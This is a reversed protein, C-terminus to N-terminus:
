HTKHDNELLVNESTSVNGHEKRRNQKRVLVRCEAHVIVTYLASSAGALM